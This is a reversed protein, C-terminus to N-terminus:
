LTVWSPYGAHEARFSQGELRLVGQARRELLGTVVAVRHDVVSVQQRCQQHLIVADDLRQQGLCAHHNRPQGVPGLRLDSGKWPLFPGHGGRGKIAGQLLHELATLLDRLLEAVLKDRGFMKQERQHLLLPRGGTAEKFGLVQRGLLQALREGFDATRMADGVLSGFRLVLRGTRM